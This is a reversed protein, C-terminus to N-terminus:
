KKHVVETNKPMRKKLSDKPPNKYTQKKAKKKKKLNIQFNSCSPCFPVRVPVPESRMHGHGPLASTLLGCNLGAGMRIEVM